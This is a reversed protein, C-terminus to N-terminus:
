NNWLRLWKKSQIVITILVIVIGTSASAIVDYYVEDALYYRKYVIGALAWVVVLAFVVDKNRILMFVALLVAIAIMVSALIQEMPEGPSYGQDVLFTTFNAVTAISLWGLYLSFFFQYRWFHQKSVENQGIGLSRYIIILELLFFVMIILSLGVQEYHWSFIWSINALSALMFHPGIKLVAGPAKANKGFGKLQSVAFIGMFIYIVSWISFTIGAPVFLNPYQASLEGTTKDNIPLANALINVIIVLVFSIFNIIQLSKTKM